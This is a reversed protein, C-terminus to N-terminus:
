RTTVTFHGKELITESERLHTRLFAQPDEKFQNQMDLVRGQGRQNDVDSALLKKMEELLRPQLPRGAELDQRLLTAVNTERLHLAFSRAVRAFGDAEKSLKTFYDRDDGELQKVLESASAAARNFHDAAIECRLQVDELLDPHQQRDDTVMFMARRTSNWSPTDAMQGHIYAASWGHDTSAHSTLRFQWAAEWPYMQMGDSLEKLFALVPQQQDGFHETIRRLLEDAPEVAGNLRASFVQFNLDRKVLPIGFYEKIGIIGPVRTMALFQEDVLRPCPISWDQTEETMDCFAAEGIVPINREACL